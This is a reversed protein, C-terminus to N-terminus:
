MREDSKEKEINLSSFCHGRRLPFRDGGGKGSQQGLWVWLYGVGCTACIYLASGGLTSGLAEAKQWTDMHSSLDLPHLSRYLHPLTRRWLGRCGKKNLPASASAPTAPHAVVSFTWRSTTSCTSFSPSRPSGRQMGRRAPGASSWSAGLRHM